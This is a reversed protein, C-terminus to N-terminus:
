NNYLGFIGDQHGFMICNLINFFNNFVQFSSPSTFISYVSFNITGPTFTVRNIGTSTIFNFPDFYIWTLTNRKLSMEMSCLM